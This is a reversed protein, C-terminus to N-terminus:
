TEYKESNRRILTDLVVSVLFVFPAIFGMVQWWSDAWYMYVYVANSAFEHGAGAEDVYPDNDGGVRYITRYTIASALSLVFALAACAYSTYLLVGKSSSSFQLVVVIMMLTVVLVSLIGAAYLRKGWWFGSYMGGHPITAFCNDVPLYRGAGNYAGDVVDDDQWPFRATYFTQFVIALLSLAIHFVNLLRLM